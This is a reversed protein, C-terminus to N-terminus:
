TVKEEWGTITPMKRMEVTQVSANKDLKMVDVIM